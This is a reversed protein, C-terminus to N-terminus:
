SMAVRVRSHTRSTRPTDRQLSEGIRIMHAGIWRRVGKPRSGPRRASNVLTEQRYTIASRVSADNFSDM